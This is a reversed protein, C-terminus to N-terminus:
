NSLDFRYGVNIFGLLDVPLNQPGVGRFGDLYDTTAMRLGLRVRDAIQVGFVLTGVLRTNLDSPDNQMQARLEDSYRPAFVLTPGGGAFFRFLDDQGWSPEFEGSFELSLLNNQFAWEPPAEGYVRDYVLHTSVGFRDRPGFRQDIGLRVNPGATTLTRLFTHSFIDSDVDGHFTNIGVGVTVGDVWDPSASDPSQQAHGKPVWLLLVLTLGCLLLGNGTRSGLGSSFLRLHNPRTQLVNLPFISSCVPECQPEREPRQALM